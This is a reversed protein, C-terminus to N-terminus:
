DFASRFLRRKFVEEVSGVSRCFGSSSEYLVSANKSVSLASCSAHCRAIYLTHLSLTPHVSLAMKAAISMAMSSPTSTRERDRPNPERGNKSSGIAIPANAAM